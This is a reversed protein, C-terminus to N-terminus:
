KPVEAQQWLLLTLLVIIAEDASMRGDYGFNLLAVIATFVGAVAMAFRFLSITRM